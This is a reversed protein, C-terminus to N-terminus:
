IQREHVVMLNIGDLILEAKVDTRVELIALFIVVIKPAEQVAKTGNMHNKQSIM